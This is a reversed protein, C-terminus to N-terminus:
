FLSIPRNIGFCNVVATLFVWACLCAQIFGSLRRGPCLLSPTLGSCPDAAAPTRVKADSHRTKLLVQYNLTKWQSDDALAVSFQGVCPVLHRTVRQQYVQEGGVTNELQLVYFANVLTFFLM